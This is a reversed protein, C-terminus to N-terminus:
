LDNENVGDDNYNMEILCCDCNDIIEEDFTEIDSTDGNCRCEKKCDPCQHM